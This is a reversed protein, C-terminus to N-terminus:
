RKKMRRRIVYFIALLILFLTVLAPWTFPNFGRMVWELINGQYKEGFHNVVTGTLAFGNRNIWDFTQILIVLAVTGIFALVFLM